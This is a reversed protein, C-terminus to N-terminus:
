IFLINGALQQHEAFFEAATKASVKEAKKSM